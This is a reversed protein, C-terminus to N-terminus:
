APELDTEPIQGACQANSENLDFRQHGGFHQLAELCSRRGLIYLAHFTWKCAFLINEQPRGVGIDGENVYLNGVCLSIRLNMAGAPFTLFLRFRALSDDHDGLLEYGSLVDLAVRCLRDNRSVPDFGDYVLRKAGMWAGNELAIVEICVVQLKVDIVGLADLAKGLIQVRIHQSGLIM